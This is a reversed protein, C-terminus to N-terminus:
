PTITQSILMTEINDLNPISAVKNGIYIECHIYDTLSTPTETINIVDQSLHILQLAGYCPIAYTNLANDTISYLICIKNADQYANPRKDILTEMDLFPITNQQWQYHGILFHDSRGTNSVLSVPLVEAILSNPLILYRQQLPILMCPVFDSNSKAM